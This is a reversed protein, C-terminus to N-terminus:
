TRQGQGKLAGEQLSTKLRNYNSWIETLNSITKTIASCERMTVQSTYALLLPKTYGRGGAGTRGHSVQACDIGM